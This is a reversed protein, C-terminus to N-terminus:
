RTISTFEMVAIFVDSNSETETISSVIFPSQVSVEINVLNGMTPNGGIPVARNLTRSNLDGLTSGDIEYTYVIGMDATTYLPTLESKAHITPDKTLASGDYVKVSNSWGWTEHPQTNTTHIAYVDNRQKGKSTYEDTWSVWLYGDDDREINPYHVDDDTTGVLSNSLLNIPDTLTDNIAMYYVWIGNAIDSAMAIITRNDADDEYIVLDLSDVWASSYWNTRNWTIGDSSVYFGWRESTMNEFIAYYYGLGRPNRFVKRQQEYGTATSVEGEDITVQGVIMPFIFGSVLILFILFAKKSKM